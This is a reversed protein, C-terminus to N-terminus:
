CHPVFVTATLVLQRSPSVGAVADVVDSDEVADVAGDEDVACAEGPLPMADARLPREVTRLRVTKSPMRGNEAQPSPGKPGM